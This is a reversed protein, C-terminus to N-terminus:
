YAVVAIVRDICTQPRSHNWATYWPGEVVEIRTMEDVPICRWNRFDGPPGLVSNSTGGFQYFLAQARGRKYGLVHPCLFRWHGDYHAIVQRRGRIAFRILEFNRSM